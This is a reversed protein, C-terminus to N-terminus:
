QASFVLVCVYTRTMASVLVCDGLVRMILLSFQVTLSYVM